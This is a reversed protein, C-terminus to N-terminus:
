EVGRRPKPPTPSPVRRAERLELALAELATAAKILTTTDERQRALSDAYMERQADAYRDAMGRLEAAYKEATAQLDAAYKEAAKRAATEAAVQGEHASQFRTLFWRGFFGVGALTTATTAAVIEVVEM